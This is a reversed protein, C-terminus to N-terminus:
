PPRSPKRGRAGCATSTCRAGLTGRSSAGTAGGGLPAPERGPVRLRSRGRVRDRAATHPHRRARLPRTGGVTVRGAAPLAPFAAPATSSSGAFTSDRVARYEELLHGRLTSDGRLYSGRKRRSRTLLAPPKPSSPTPTRRASRVRTRSCACPPHRPQRTPSCSPTGNSCSARGSSPRRGPRDDLVIVRAPDTM